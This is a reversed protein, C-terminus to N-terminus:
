YFATIVEKYGEHIWKTRKRKSKKEPSPGINSNRRNQTGRSHESSSNIGATCKEIGAQNRM